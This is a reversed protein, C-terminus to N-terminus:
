KLFQIVKFAQLQCIVDCLDDKKKSKNILEVISNEERSKVIDLGKQVCWKKRQPKDVAKYSIKGTKTVKKDKEAGLVQTKHYAPFEIINKSRGYHISFYSWCHQGLKLAMTNHKKGFSMQKEIIFYSCKDWYDMYKDLLDNMNHFTLEDLYSTKDCNQTLDNNELIITKGLKCIDKLIPEFIQTVTGNDNYKKSINSCDQSEIYKTNFEEIYFSFNKKGIDFSAVWINNEVM